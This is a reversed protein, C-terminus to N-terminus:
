ATENIKDDKKKLQNFLNVLGEAMLTYNPANIEEVIYPPENQKWYEGLDSV